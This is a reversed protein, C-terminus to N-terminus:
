AAAKATRWRRKLAALHQRWVDLEDDNEGVCDQLAQWFYGPTPAGDHADAFVERSWWCPFCLSERRWSGDYLSSHRLYPVGPAISANCCDCRHPKRAFVAHENWVPAADLDLSCM